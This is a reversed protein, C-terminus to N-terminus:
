NPTSDSNLVTETDPILYLSALYAGSLEAGFFFLVSLLAFWDPITPNLYVIFVFVTQIAWGALLGLFASAFVQGRLGKPALASAVAIGVPVFLFPFKQIPLGIPSLVLGLAIGVGLPFLGPGTVALLRAKQSRKM